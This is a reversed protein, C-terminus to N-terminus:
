NLVIIAVILTIVIAVTPIGMMVGVKLLFRNMTQPIEDLKKYTRQIDQENREVKGEMAAQSLEVKNLREGFGNIESQTM